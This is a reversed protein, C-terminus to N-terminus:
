YNVPAEEKKIRKLLRIISDNELNKCIYENGNQKIELPATPIWTSCITSDWPDVAYEIDFVRLSGNKYLHGESVKIICQEVDFGMFMYEKKM